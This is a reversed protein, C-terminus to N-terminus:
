NLYLEFKVKGYRFLKKHAILIPFYSDTYANLQEVYLKEFRDNKNVFGGKKFRGLNIM